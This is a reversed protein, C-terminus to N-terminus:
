RRALALMTLDDSLSAGALFSSLDTLCEAILERPPHSAGRALVRILRESGYEEERSNAAETLGDTYLVLTDGEDLVVQEARYRAGPEPAIALGLPLGAAGLTEVSGSSRVVIPTSHGANVTEVEGSPSARGCVLTAYHSALTSEALLRNAEGLAEEPSLGRRAFARLSANLHAMLLSAAVGKGSVDGLMFYLGAERDRDAVVLDCYDGSVPGHPLYRYHTQWGAAVLGLPPLLAAQVHWALDLDRELARQREPTLPCLCYTAMPNARLDSVEVSEQCVLCAGYNGADLRSLASDVEALLRVLDAPQDLSAITSELRSRRDSLQSRLKAQLAVADPASDM